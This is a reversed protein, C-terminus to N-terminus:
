VIQVLTSLWEYIAEKVEPNISAFEHTLLHLIRTNVEGMSALANTQLEEDMSFLLNSMCTIACGLVQMEEESQAPTMILNKNLSFLQEYYQITKKGAESLICSIAKLAEKKCKINSCSNMYAILINFLDSVYPILKDENM